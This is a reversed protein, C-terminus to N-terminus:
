VKVPEGIRDRAQEDKVAEKAKLFEERSLGRGLEELTRLVFRQRVVTSHLADLATRQAAVKAQLWSANVPKEADNM